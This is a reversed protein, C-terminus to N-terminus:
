LEKVDDSFALMTLLTATKPTATAKKELEQLSNM